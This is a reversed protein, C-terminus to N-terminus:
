DWGEPPELWDPEPVLEPDDVKSGLTALPVEDPEAPLHNKCCMINLRLYNTSLNDFLELCFIYINLFFSKFNSQNM